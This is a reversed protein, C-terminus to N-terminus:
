IVGTKVCPPFIDILETVVIYLINTHPKYIICQSAAIHIKHFEMICTYMTDTYRM